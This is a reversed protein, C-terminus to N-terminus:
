IHHLKGDINILAIEEIEPSNQEEKLILLFDGKEGAARPNKGRVVGYGNCATGAEKKVGYNWQRKPHEVM